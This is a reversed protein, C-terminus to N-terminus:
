ASKSESLRVVDKDDHKTSIEIIIADTKGYFKHPEKSHITVPSTTATLIYDKDEITLKVMGRYAYFTEVKNNHYHYSSTAGQNLLLLKGCYLDTNVLWIEKGWVKEVEKIKEIKM